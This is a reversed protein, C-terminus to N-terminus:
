QINLDTQARSQRFEIEVGDNLLNGLSIQNPIYIFAHYWYDVDVVTNFFRGTPILITDGTLYEYKTPIDLRSDKYVIKIHTLVLRLWISVLAIQGLYPLEQM